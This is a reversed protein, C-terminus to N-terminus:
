LTLFNRGRGKSSNKRREGHVGVCVCARKFVDFIRKKNLTERKYSSFFEARSRRERFTELTGKQNRRGLKVDARQKRFCVCM